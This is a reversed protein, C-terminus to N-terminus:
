PLENDGCEAAEFVGLQPTVIAISVTEKGGAAKLDCKEL